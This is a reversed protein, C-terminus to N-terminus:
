HVLIINDLLDINLLLINNLIIKKLKDLFYINFYTNGVLQLIYTYIITAFAFSANNFCRKSKKYLEYIFFFHTAFSLFLIFFFCHDAFEESSGTLCVDKFPYVVPYDWSMERM